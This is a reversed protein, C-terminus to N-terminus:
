GRGEERERDVPLSGTEGAPTGRAKKRRHLWLMVLIIAIVTAWSASYIVIIPNELINTSAVPERHPVPHSEMRLLVTAPFREGGGFYRVTVTANGSRIMAEAPANNRGPFMITRTLRGSEDAIELYWEDPSAKAYQDFARVTLLSGPPILVRWTGNESTDSFSLIRILTENEALRVSGSASECSTEAPLSVAGPQLRDGEICGFRDDMVQNYNLAVPYIRIEDLAGIFPPPCPAPKDYAGAEAGLIVYNASSYHIRGTANVQNRLVGDLYIKMTTGDYTGTIQHWQRPAINEHQVAVGVDGARELNLTWWLDNGDGFGLRYGGDNVASVLSAPTFNECYFWASVTIEDAPHNLTRFPIAVYSDPNSFVVARGCGGNETRSVNNLTGANGHGSGDLAYNGSGENFNLYVAPEPMGAQEQAAAMGCALIMFVVLLATRSWMGRPFPLIKMAQERTYQFRDSFFTASATGCANISLSLIKKDRLARKPM